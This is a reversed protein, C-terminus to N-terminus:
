KSVGQKRRQERLKIRGKTSAELLARARGSGSHSLPRFKKGSLENYSVFFHEIQDPLDPSLQDLSTVSRYSRSAAAVGILRDNRSTKNNETQEAEIVGILRTPVLTGQIAAEDVLVLIDLPDGDEARTGPIFGFDFPFAMGAPLVSKLVFLGKQEDFHYKNRSGKPTDIIVQLFGTEPDIQPLAKM